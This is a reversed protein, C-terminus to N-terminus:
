LAAAATVGFADLARRGIEDLKERTMSADADDYCLSIYVHGGSRGSVIPFFIGGARRLFDRTVMDADRVQRACFWEADTGDPRNTAPELDGANSCTINSSRLLVGQFRNALAKPVLPILPLPAMVHKRTDVLASLTVKVQARVVPLDTAVAPDVTMAVGTLANGRTDGPERENVPITINALGEADLWNLYECLRTTFAVLLSNGTGGMSAARQDWHGTDVFFTVSPLRIVEDRLALADTTRRALGTEVSPRLRLPVAKAAMPAAVVASAIRPLDRLLQRADERFAQMRTRSHAPPYSLPVGTGNVADAVANSMGVGDAVGHAVVLTVAAGGGTIPQVSLRWPPGTEVDIRLASQEDVWVPIDSRPRSECAVDFDAPPRWQVWRSRGFPLPSHEICRSLLGNSLNRHFRRLADLDVDHEYIWVFQIMAGHGQARFDLYFSEDLYDLLNSARTAETASPTM